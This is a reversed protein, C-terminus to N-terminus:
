DSYSSSTRTSYTSTGPLRRDSDNTQTPKIPDSRITDSQDCIKTIILWSFSNVVTAEFQTKNEEESKELSFLGGLGFFQFAFRNSNLFLRVFTVNHHLSSTDDSPHQMVFVFHSRLDPITM